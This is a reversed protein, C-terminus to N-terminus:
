MFIYNNCLVYVSYVYVILVKTLADVCVCVGEGCACVCVGEGHACM